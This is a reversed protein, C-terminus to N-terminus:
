GAGVPMGFIGGEIRPEAMRPGAPADDLTQAVLEDVANRVADGSVGMTRLADMARGNGESM